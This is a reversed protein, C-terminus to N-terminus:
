PLWYHHAADGIFSWTWSPTRDYSYGGNAPFIEWHVALGYLLLISLCYYPIASVFLSSVFAGKDFWGGRYAAIAGLINGIMWGVLIAPIQLAITWPLADVILDSVPKPYIAFSTGFDGHALNGLYNIFQKWAPDNLKFEAVYNEYIRQLSRAEAGGASLRAIIADVPNGPILRPLFFNATLSVLFAAAFWITKTLLYRQFRTMLSRSCQSPGSKGLSGPFEARFM